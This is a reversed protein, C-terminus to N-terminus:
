RTWQEGNISILPFHHPGRRRRPSIVAAQRESSIKSGNRKRLHAAAGCLLYFHVFAVCILYGFSLGVRENIRQEREAM